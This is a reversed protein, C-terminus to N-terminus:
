LIGWATLSTVEVHGEPAILAHQIMIEVDKWCVIFLEIVTAELVEQGSFVCNQYVHSVSHHLKPLM